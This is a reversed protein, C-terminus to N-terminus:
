KQGTKRVEGQKSQFLNTQPIIEIMMLKYEDGM